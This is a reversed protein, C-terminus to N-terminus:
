LCQNILDAGDKAHYVRGAAMDEIAVDLGNKRHRHITWGMKHSLTTIFRYDSQPISLYVQKQPIAAVEMSKEKRKIDNQAAFTIYKKCIHM